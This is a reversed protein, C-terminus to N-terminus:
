IGNVVIHVILHSMIKLLINEGFLEIKWRFSGLLVRGRLWRNWRLGNSM